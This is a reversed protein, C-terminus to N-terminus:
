YWLDHNFKTLHVQVQKTLSIMMKKHFLSGEPWFRKGTSARHAKGQGHSQWTRVSSQWVSTDTERHQLHIVAKWDFSWGGMKKRLRTETLVNFLIHLTKHQKGASDSSISYTLYKAKLQHEQSVASFCCQGQKGDVPFCRPAGLPM